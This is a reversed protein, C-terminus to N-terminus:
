LLGKRRVEPAVQTATSDRCQRFLEAIAPAHPDILMRDPDCSDPGYYEETRDAASRWRVAVGGSSLWERNPILLCLRGPFRGPTYRRVAAMTAQEFRFKTVSIPDTGTPTRDARLAKLRQRLREALYQRRDEFSTLTALAKAHIAVRRGWYPLSFRYLPPYLCGFLALFSVAAGRQLLQQALEFAVAGGACYGAIICPGNPRFAQIQSAFYSALDEVRKLPESRGDLGPPQLGFFPQDAGLHRVLDRFAFVDGNHGGAAFVPIRTGRPQMPVIAEQQRAIAEATRLFEIIQRKRQRLEDRLEPTLAGAPANCRLREGDASLKIDRSSLEALFSSVRM